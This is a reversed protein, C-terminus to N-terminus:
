KFVYNNILFHGKIEYIYNETEFGLTVIECTHYNIKIFIIKWSKYRFLSDLSALKITRVLIKSAISFQVM